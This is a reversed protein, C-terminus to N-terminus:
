QIEKQEIQASISNFSIGPSLVGNIFVAPTRVNNKMAKTAVRLNEELQLNYRGEKVSQELSALDIGEFEKALSILTELDMKKDSLRLFYERVFPFFFQPTQTYIDLAANAVEHSHPLFAVPILVYKVIGPAIYNSQIAPFVELTFYRCLHCMLDEFVIVEVEAGGNGISPYHNSDITIM